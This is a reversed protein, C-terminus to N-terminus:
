PLPHGEPDVPVVPGCGAAEIQARIVRADGVIVTAMREPALYLRSVRLIDEQSVGRLRELYTAYHDPPLDYMSRAQLAISVQGATEFALAFGGALGDVAFRHEEPTIGGEQMLRIETTLETLAEGTRDTHFAGGAVFPGESRFAQFASWAGYTLGRQERLNRNLRSSFQGGLIRNMIQVPLHDPSNRRVGIAGIRIESQVSGPRDVLLITRDPPPPPLLPPMDAYRGAPREQFTERMLREFAPMTIDGVGIVVMRDPRYHMQKFRPVDGHQVQPLSRESGEPENGYPHPHRFITRYLLDNAITSARDKQQLFSTLRQARLREVESEPFTADRFMDAIVGLTSELHATLTSLTFVTGDHAVNSHFYAGAFDFAEAIEAISRTATGADFADATLTALGSREPPDAVAGSRLVFALHVLPLTHREVLQLRTGAPLVSEQIEPIM